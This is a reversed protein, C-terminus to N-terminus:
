LEYNFMFPLPESGEARYYLDELVPQLFMQLLFLLHVHWSRHCKPSKLTHCRFQTMLRIFGTKKKTEVSCQCKVCLCWVSFTNLHRWLAVVFPDSHKSDEQICCSLSLHIISQKKSQIHEIKFYWLSCRSFLSLRGSSIVSWDNRNTMEKQRDM